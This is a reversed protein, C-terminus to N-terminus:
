PLSSKRSSSMRKWWTRSHTTFLWYQVLVGSSDAATMRRLQSTLSKSPEPMWSHSGNLPTPRRMFVNSWGDMSPAIASAAFFLAILLAVVVLLVVTRLWVVKKRNLM